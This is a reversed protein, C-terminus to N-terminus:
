LWTNIERNCSIRFAATFRSISPPWSLLKGSLLRRRPYLTVHHRKRFRQRVERFMGYPGLDLPVERDGVSRLDINM